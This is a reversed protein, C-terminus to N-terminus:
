SGAEPAAQERDGFRNEEGRLLRGLNSRHAWVVLSALAVTFWLVATGGQHPTFYVGLPAVAM